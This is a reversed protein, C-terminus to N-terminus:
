EMSIHSERIVRGWLETEEGIFKKADALSGGMPDLEIARLKQVIAPTHLVADTDRNIKEALAAPLGPPGAIAFWTISRFGPLGQEAITPLEPVAASREASAVGLIKLKGARYLPVSTALTDFFMDVNGAMIDTLAPQAGHYPVHVMKIGALVELESGSLHATTGVGQSAFTLKGPNAKGYAILGKLDTAPFNPRVDLINAIKALMVVPVLKTPDYKLNHYLLQNVTLPSPPCLLLTYGDPAARAVYESGLNTAAGPMNEVIVPKGWKDQLEKAVLRALIDTTSGPLSPVVVKVVKSPYAEQAWGSAAALMAIVLALLWSRASPM